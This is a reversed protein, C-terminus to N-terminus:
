NFAPCISKFFCWDCLKSKKPPFYNTEIATLIENGINVLIRETSELDKESPQSRVIQSDGLYILQLLRPLVGENKWYMLAYVRLQFLAKEEWGPKPAKGTKYDVIRVEGTPAIDLRDVYGHLYLDSSLNRELHLERHTSEFSAPNELKFYTAILSSARSIWESTDLVLASLEPQKEIQENWKNPLISLATELSRENMPFEFLDELVAHVLKGREADISPPEPLLDIARYKYKQPCNTFESIRSPSLRLM